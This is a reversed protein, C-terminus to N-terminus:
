RARLTVETTEGAKLDVTISESQQDDSGPNPRGSIIYREPPVDKYTIQNNADIMGSGSWKGVAEGGEPEMEVIYAEPRKKGTYDVNVRVAASRMMSLAVDQTPTTIPQGLGPRCYGPKRVWVTAKGVPVQDIRFRGDADTKTAYEDPTQYRGGGAAAVNALRVEVDALANGADDTIRGAVAAVRALGGDFSQWGPQGDTRVYGVVRSVYGEGMVVVRHWGAPTNKLVWRGERDAAVETVAVYRYGGELAQEVRELRMRAAVPTGTDLDTVRGELVTGDAPTFGHTELREDVVELGKPVTVESWRVNGGTYVDIQAPPGEETEGVDAPKLDAPLSRLRQWSNPQWVMFVWDIRAEKEKVSERNPNLWFSHGVGDHVVLRKVKVDLKAFDALVASLAQGDGRCEAHWQGGGFPPGEWYAVRGPHNFIAAAGAPWGPDRIPENGVGGTILGCATGCAALTMTVAVIVAAAQSARFRLLRRGWM